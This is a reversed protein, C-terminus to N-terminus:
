RSALRPRRRPTSLCSLKTDGHPALAPQPPARCAILEGSAHAQELEPMSELAEAVRVRESAVGPTYGMRRELYERISVMGLERWLQVAIAERILALEEHDLAGRRKALSRFQRDLDRWVARGGAGAVMASGTEVTTSGDFM